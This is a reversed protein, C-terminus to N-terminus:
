AMPGFLQNMPRIERTVSPRALGCQGRHIMRMAEFGKIPACASKMRQFGGMPRIRWRIARHDQEIRNNDPM